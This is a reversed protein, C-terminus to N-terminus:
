AIQVSNKTTKTKEGKSKLIGVPNPNREPFKIRFNIPIDKAGPPKYNWTSSNLLKGDENLIIDESTYYGM